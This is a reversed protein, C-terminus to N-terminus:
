KMPGIFKLDSGDCVGADEVYFEVCVCFSSLVLSLTIV